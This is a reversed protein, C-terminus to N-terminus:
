LQGGEEEEEVEERQQGKGGAGHAPLRGLPCGETLRRLLQKKRNTHRQNKGTKLHNQPVKQGSFM